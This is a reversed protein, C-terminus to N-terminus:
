CRCVQDRRSQRVARVLLRELDWRAWPHGQGAPGALVKDLRDMPVALVQPFVPALLDWPDPRRVQLGLVLLASRRSQVLQRVPLVPGM